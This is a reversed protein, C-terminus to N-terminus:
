GGSRCSYGGGNELGEGPISVVVSRVESIQACSRGGFSWSLTLDGPLASAPPNTYGGGGHGPNEYIICGGLSLAAVLATLVRAKM